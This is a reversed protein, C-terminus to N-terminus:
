ASSSCSSVFCTFVKAIGSNMRPPITEIINPLLIATSPAAPIASKKPTESLIMPRVITANPVDSGSSMVETVAARFPSTSRAMPFITPLLRKLIRNMRPIVLTIISRGYMESAALKIISPKTASPVAISSNRRDHLPFSLLDPPMM